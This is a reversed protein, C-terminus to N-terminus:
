TARREHDWIHFCRVTSSFPGVQRAGPHSGEVLVQEKSLTTDCADCTEGDSPGSWVRTISDHPLHGDRIKNRVLLRLSEQDM